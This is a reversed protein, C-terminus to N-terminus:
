WLQFLLAAQRLDDIARSESRPDALPDVIQSPFAWRGHNRNENGHVSEGSADWGNDLIYSRPYKMVESKLEDWM